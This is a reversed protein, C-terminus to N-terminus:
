YPRTPESIHILSLNLIREHSFESIQKRLLLKNVTGWTGQDISEVALSPKSLLSGQKSRDYIDHHAHHSPNQIICHRKVASKFQLPTCSALYAQKYPLSVKDHHFFGLQKNLRHIKDNESDPEVVIRKANLEEFIFSMICRFVGYSFGSIPHKVPAMLIHMGMDGNKIAMHKSIDEHEPQYAELLFAAEGNLYGMFIQTHGQNLMDSYAQTVQQLSNDQMGWYKAYPLTVWSHVRSSHSDLNFEQLSFIGLEKIDKTFTTNTM